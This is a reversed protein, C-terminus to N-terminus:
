RTLRQVFTDKWTLENAKRTASRKKAAQPFCFRISPGATLAVAVSKERKQYGPKGGLIHQLYTGIIIRFFEGFPYSSMDVEKRTLAQRLESILPTYLTRFKTPLDGQSNIVLALLSKGSKLHGTLVCFDALQIIRSIKSSSLELSNYGYCPYSRSQAAVSDWQRVAANLCRQPVKDFPSQTEASAGPSTSAEGNNLLVSKNQQIALLFEIWFNYISPIKILQPLL